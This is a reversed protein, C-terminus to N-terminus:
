GVDTSEGFANAVRTAPGLGSAEMLEGLAASIGSAVRWPDPVLRPDVIFGFDVRDMYSIVTCNIGMGELIISCPFMGTAKAGCMYLQIPPGPVNSVTTNVVSGGRSALGSRYLARVATGLILPSAVEGLSQIQRVSMAKQLAKATQSSAQIARLREVPDAVDTALSVFMTSVQNDLTHDGENRTSVPVGATLASDPLEGRDRLYSHLAGAVLALIVDNIKVDHAVKLRKLDDIAVSAFSLGRHPGIAKNFSTEPARLMGQQEGSRVYEIAAASLKIAGNALYRPLRFPRRTSRGMLGRVINIAGPATGAKQEELSPPPMLPETAHPDIDMLITALSAGSVGDLLCHHYKLVVAVRGGALGDLFWLEWLPQNRDLQSSMVMGAIDATERFGGPRPVGIRRVHNRIDFEDDDVWFPVDLGLPMTMLKWRFKPAWALRAEVTKIVDDFVVPRAGPELIILGGVHQHWSPTELSLFLSDTGALRRV